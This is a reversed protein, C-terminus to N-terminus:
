LKIYSDYVSSVTVGEPLEKKFEPKEIPNAYKDFYNIPLGLRDLNEAVDSGKGVIIVRANDVSFIKKSAELVDDTSVM